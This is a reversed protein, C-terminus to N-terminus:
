NPNPLVGARVLFTKVDEFEAAPVLITGNRLKVWVNGGSALLDLDGSDRPADGAVPVFIGDEFNCGSHKRYPVPYSSYEERGLLSAM